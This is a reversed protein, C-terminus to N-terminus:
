VKPPPVEVLQSRSHIRCPPTSAVRQLSFPHSLETHIPPQGLIQMMREHQHAFENSEEENALQRTANVVETERDDRHGVVVRIGCSDYDQDVDYMWGRYSFETSHEWEVDPMPRTPNFALRISVAQKGCAGQMRAIGRMGSAFVCWGGTAYLLSLILVASALFKLMM